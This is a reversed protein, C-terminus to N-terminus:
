RHQRVGEVEYVAVSAKDSTAIYKGDPSYICRSPYFASYSSRSISLHTFLRSPAACSPTPVYLAWIRTSSVQLELPNEVEPNCIAHWGDGQITYRVPIDDLSLRLFGPFLSTPRQVAIVGQCWPMGPRSEPNPQWCRELLSRIFNPVTITSLDAPLM